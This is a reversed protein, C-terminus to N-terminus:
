KNSILTKVHEDVELSTSPKNRQYTMALDWPLNDKKAAKRLGFITGESLRMQVELRHWQVVCEAKLTYLIILKLTYFNLVDYQVSYRWNGGLRWIPHGSFKQKLQVLCRKRRWSCLIQGLYYNFTIQIHSCNTTHTISPSGQRRKNQLSAINFIHGAM